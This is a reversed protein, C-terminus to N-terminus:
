RQLWIWRALLAWGLLFCLGGFPTLAGLVTVGTLSLILLSGSFLFIGCIFLWGIATVQKDAPKKMQYLGLVLLALAHYILYQVATQWTHARGTRELLPGLAHAGFAGLAVSLFALLAGLTAFIRPM